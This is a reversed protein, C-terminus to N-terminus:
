VAGYPERNMLGWSKGWRVCMCVCECVFKCVCECLQHAGEKDEM